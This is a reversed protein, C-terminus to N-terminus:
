VGDAGPCAWSPHGVGVSAIIPCTTSTRTPKAVTLNRINLGALSFGAAAIRERVMPVSTNPHVPSSETADRFLQIRRFGSDAALELVQPLELEPCATPSFALDM